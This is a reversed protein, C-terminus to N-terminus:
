APRRYVGDRRSRCPRRPGTLRDRRPPRRAGASRRRPQGERARGDGGRASRAAAAADDVPAIGYLDTGVAILEIGLDAAHEAIERHAAQPEDLEAMVGLVAVRRRADIAALADLGARMSVPNANYADDIVIAGSALHHVACGAPRCRPRRRDGHRRRVAPRRVARRRRRALAADIAMHRGSVALRVEDAGWPTHIRFTARAMDDLHIQEVRVDADGSEGVLLVDATTREAMARVRPDDANLVATGDSQLAEVLEAKARAM